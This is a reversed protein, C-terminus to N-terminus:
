EYEYSWRGKPLILTHVGGRSKRHGIAHIPGMRREVMTDDLSASLLIQQFM